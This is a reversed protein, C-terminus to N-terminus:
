ATQYYIKESLVGFKRPYWINCHIFAENELRMRAIENNTKDMRHFVQNFKSNQNVLIYTLKDDTSKEAWGNPIESDENMNTSNSYMEINEEPTNTNINPLVPIHLSPDSSSRRLRSARTNDHSLRNFISSVSRLGRDASVLPCTKVLSSFVRTCCYAKSKNAAFEGACDFHFVANCEYCVVRNEAVCYTCVKCRGELM